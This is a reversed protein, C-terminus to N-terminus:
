CWISALTYLLEAKLLETCAAAWLSLAVPATIEGLLPLIDQILDPGLQAGSQCTDAEMLKSQEICHGRRIYDAMVAQSLNVTGNIGRYTKRYERLVSNIPLRTERSDSGSLSSHTGRWTLAMLHLSVFSCHPQRNPPLKMMLDDKWIGHKEARQLRGVGGRLSWRFGIKIKEHHSLLVGGRWGGVKKELSTLSVEHWGRRVSDYWMEGCEVKGEQKGKLCNWFEM